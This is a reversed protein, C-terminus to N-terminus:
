EVCGIESLMDEQALRALLAEVTHYTHTEDGQIRWVLEGDNGCVTICTQAQEPFVIRYGARELARCTWMAPMGDGIIAISGRQQSDIAFVGTGKDFRAGTDAFAAAFADSLVLDEPVGQQLPGGPPLLWLRDACRLALDLDHTSLLVARGSTHALGRLLHMLEVRRPLDLFATAEDLLMVQPEQALARAILVKQREGDSLECVPRHALAEIGVDAMAQRIAEEDRATM